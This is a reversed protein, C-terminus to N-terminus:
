LHKSTDISIQTQWFGLAIQVRETISPTPCVPCTNWKNQQLLAAKSWNGIDSVLRVQLFVLQVHEVFNFNQKKRQFNIYDLYHFEKM